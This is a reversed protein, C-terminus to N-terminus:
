GNRRPAVPKTLLSRPTGSRRAWDRGLPGQPVWVV